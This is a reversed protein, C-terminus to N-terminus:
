FIIIVITNSRVCKDLIFSVLNTQAMISRVFHLPQSNRTKLIVM